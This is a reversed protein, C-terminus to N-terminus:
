VKKNDKLVPLWYMIFENKEKDNLGIISLKEELFKIADKDEVYFGESYNSPKEGSLSFYAILTGILLVVVVIILIIGKKNNM